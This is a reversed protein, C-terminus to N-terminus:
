ERMSEALSNVTPDLDESGTVKLFIDELNGESHKKELEGFTGSDVIKGAYLISLRTCLRQAVEMIHTSFIIIKGREAIRALLDKLIKSSRPDLGNMAEDLVIVQPDHILAAIIAVKQRTGFSLNGIYDSSTEDLEFAKLFETARKEYQGTPVKRVSAIFRLYEWISMSEYLAPTEPVYGTISKVVNNETVTDHGLVRIYGSTPKIISSILKLMTTKGSGNPGLIGYIQGQEVQLNIGSLAIKDSYAKTINVLEIM